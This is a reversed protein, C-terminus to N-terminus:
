EGLNQLPPQLTLGYPLSIKFETPLQLNTVEVTGGHREIIKRVVWLGLGQGTVNMEVAKEGRVGAEFITEAIGAEIGTGWDRFWIIFGTRDKM